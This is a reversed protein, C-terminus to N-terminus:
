KTKGKSINRPLNKLFEECWARMLEIDRRVISIEVASDFRRAIGRANNSRFWSAYRLPNNSTRFTAIFIDSRTKNKRGLGAAAILLNRGSLQAFRTEDPARAAAQIHKVEGLNYGADKLVGQVGGGEPEGTPIGNKGRGCFIGGRAVFSARRQKVLQEAIYNATRRARFKLERATKTLKEDQHAKAWVALGEASIDVHKLKDFSLESVAEELAVLARSYVAPLNASKAAATVETRILVPLRNLKM